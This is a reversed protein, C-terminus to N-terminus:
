FLLNQPQQFSVFKDSMYVKLDHVYLDHDHLLNSSPNHDHGHAHRANVHLLHSLPTIIISFQPQSSSKTKNPQCMKKDTIKEIKGSRIQLMFVLFMFMFMIVFMFGFMLFMFVMVVFFM